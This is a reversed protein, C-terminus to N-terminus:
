GFSSYVPQKARVLNLLENRLSEDRPEWYAIWSALWQPCNEERRLPIQSAASDMEAPRTQDRLEAASKSTVPIGQFYGYSSANLRNRAKDVVDIARWYNPAEKELWSQVSQIMEQLRQQRVEEPTKPKKLDSRRKLEEKLHRPM